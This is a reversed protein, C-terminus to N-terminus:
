HLLVADISMSSDAVESVSDISMSSWSKNLSLTATKM